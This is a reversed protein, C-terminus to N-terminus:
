PQWVTRRLNNLVYNMKKSGSIEVYMNFQDQDEPALDGLNLRLDKALELDRLQFDRSFPRLYFFDFLAKAITARYFIVGYYYKQNFGLYLPKKIHRYDFTGLSNIITRTNRTTVATVPYTAETLIGAQQLVYDLSLYSQPFIVASVAPTFDPDARRLEYFRRTMYVGRKLSLIHGAQKWRSLLERARPDVKEGGGIIQRFGAITFYPIQEFPKLLDLKM